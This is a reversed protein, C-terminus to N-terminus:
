FRFREQKKKNVDKKTNVNLKKMSELAKKISGASLSYWSKKSLQEWNRQVRLPYPCPM